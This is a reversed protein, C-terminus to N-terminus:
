SEEKRPGVEVWGDNVQVQFVPVPDVAPGHTPEGTQVDFVSGHCPCEVELEKEQLEGESLSCSQHTCEDGFAYVDNAVHAVAVRGSQVDFARLEGEPIEAMSGVRQFEDAM